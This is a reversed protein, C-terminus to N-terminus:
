PRQRQHYGASPQLGATVKPALGPRPYNESSYIAAASVVLGQSKGRARPLPTTAEPRTQDPRAAPGRLEPQTVTAAAPRCGPRAGAALVGAPWARPDAPPHGTGLRPVHVPKRRRLVDIARERSVRRERRGLVDGFRRDLGDM